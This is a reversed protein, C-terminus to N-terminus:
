KNLLNDIKTKFDALSPVGTIKEGNIFFTPTANVGIAEGDSKDRQIKASFKNDKVDQQFKNTDLGLEQAYGVFIELAKDSESWQGQNEYLKSTMEWFKGQDGAAEAAEASILANKHQPLPFHRFVFNVKGTYEKMIQKLIPDAQACAPCQYDAFEVVKVKASESATQRSDPRILLKEQDSTLQNTTPTSTKSLLFVGGVILALTALGIGLLIKLEQTM